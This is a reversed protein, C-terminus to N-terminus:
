FVKQVTDLVNSPLSHSSNETDILKRICFYIWVGIHVLASNVSKGVITKVTM